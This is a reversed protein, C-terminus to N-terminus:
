KVNLRTHGPNFRYCTHVGAAWADDTSDREGRPLARVTTPHTARSRLKRKRRHDSTIPKPQTHRRAERPCVVRGPWTPNGPSSAPRHCNYPIRPRAAPSQGVPRCAAICRDTLRECTRRYTHETARHTQATHRRLSSSSLSLNVHCQLGSTGAQGTKFDQKSFTFFSSPSMVESIRRVTKFKTKATNNVFFLDACQPVFPM